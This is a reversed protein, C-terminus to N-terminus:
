EGRSEGSPLLLCCLISHGLIIIFERGELNHHIAPPPLKCDRLSDIGIGAPNFIGNPAATSEKQYGGGRTIRYYTLPCSPVRICPSRPIIITAHIFSLISVRFTEKRELLLGSHPYGQFFFVGDKEAPGYITGCSSVVRPIRRIM